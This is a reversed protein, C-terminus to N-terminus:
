LAKPKDFVVVTGVVKDGLEQNNKDWVLWFNVIGLTVWSLIGIIAKAVVLLSEMLLGGLRRGPRALCVGVPMGDVQGCLQCAMNPGWTRGCNACTGTSAAAKALPAATIAAGPAQVQDLMFAAQLPLDVFHSELGAGFHGAVQQEAPM